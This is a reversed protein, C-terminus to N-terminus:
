LHCKTFFLPLINLSQTFIHKCQIHITCRGAPKSHLIESLYCLIFNRIAAKSPIQKSKPWRMVLPSSNGWRGRLRGARENIGETQWKPPWSKGWCCMVGRRGKVKQEASTRWSENKDRDHWSIASACKVLGQPSTNNNLVLIAIEGNDHMWMQLNWPTDEVATPAWKHSSSLFKLASITDVIM